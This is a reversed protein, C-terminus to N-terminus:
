QFNINTLRLYDVRFCISIRLLPNVLNNATTNYNIGLQNYVDIMYIENNNVYENYDEFLNNKEYSISSTIKFGKSPMMSYLYHRKRGDFEYKM